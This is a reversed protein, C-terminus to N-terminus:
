AAGYIEVQVFEVHNAWGPYQARAVVAVRDGERLASVFGAGDGFGADGSAGDMSWTIKHDRTTGDARANCQVMWQADGDNLSSRGYTFGLAQLDDELPLALKEKYELLLNNLMEEHKDIQSLSTPRLIIAEFWSWAGDYPGPLNSEGGWGQDHGSIEFKIMRAKTIGSEGWGAPDLYCQSANDGPGRSAYLILHEDEFAAIIRPWYMADELIEDALEVPLYIALMRRVLRVDDRTPVHPERPSSSNSGM